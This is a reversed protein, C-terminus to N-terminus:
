DSYMTIGGTALLNGKIYTGGENLLSIFEGSVVNNMYTGVAGGSIYASTVSNAGFSAKFVGNHKIIIENYLYGYASLGGDIALGVTTGTNNYVDLKGSSSVTGICVRGSPTLTLNAGQQETGLGSMDMHMGRTNTWLYGINSAGSSTDFIITSTNSIDGSVNGTGDFSQGWITRATQLKTASSANGSLSGEFGSVAILKGWKGNFWGGANDWFEIHGDGSALKSLNDNGMSAGVYTTNDNFNMFSDAHKGDLLDADLGSNSGDNGSHWITNWNNGGDFSCLVNKNVVSLLNWNTTGSQRYSLTGYGYDLGLSMVNGNQKALLAYYSTNSDDGLQINGNITGGSLMLYRNDGGTVNLYSNSTLYNQLETTSIAGTIESYSYSPKSSGIWTPKGTINAWAVSNAVGGSSGVAKLIKNGNEDLDWYITANDIPLGDYISGLDLGDTDAYMTVGLQTVVPYTTYIYNTGDTL